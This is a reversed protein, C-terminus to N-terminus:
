NLVHSRLVELFLPETEATPLHVGLIQALTPATALRDIQGLSRAAPVGAGLIFFSANMDHVDPWYGHMGKSASPTVLDGSIGEGIM